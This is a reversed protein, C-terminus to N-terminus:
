NSVPPLGLDARVVQADATAATADKEFQSVNLISLGESLDTAMREVAVALAHIDSRAAAPWTQALLTRGFAIAANTLPQTQAATLSTAAPYRKGFQTDAANWPAADAVYQSAYNVTAVSPPGTHSGLAVPAHTAGCGLLGVTLVVVGGKPSLRM